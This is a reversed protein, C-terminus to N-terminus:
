LCIVQWIYSTMNVGPPFIYIQLFFQRGKMSILWKCVKGVNFQLKNKKLSKPINELSNLLAINSTSFFIANILFFLCFFAYKTHPISFSQNPKFTKSMSVHSENSFNIKQFHIYKENKNTTLQVMKKFHNSFM